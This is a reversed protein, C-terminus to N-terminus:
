RAVARAPACPQKSVMAHPVQGREFMALEQPSIIGKKVLYEALQRGDIPHSAPPTATWNLEPPIYTEGGEDAGVVAPWAALLAIATLAGMWTRLSKLRRM